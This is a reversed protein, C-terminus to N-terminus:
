RVEGMFIMDDALKRALTHRTEGGGRRRAIFDLDPGFKAAVVHMARKMLDAGEESEAGAALGSIKITLGKLGDFGNGNGSAVGPLISSRIARTLGKSSAIGLNCTDTGPCSTIDLATGAGVEDLGCERLGDHLARLDTRKVNPLVVNQDIAIRAHDESYETTLDALAHLVPADLEGLPVVVTVVARDPDKHARVSLSSWREFEPDADAQEPEPVPGPAKDVPPRGSLHWALVPAFEEPVYRRLDTEEIEKRTMSAREKAVLKRFEEIGLRHVVFKLRAKMKKTRNCHGSAVKIISKVLPLFEEVPVFEELVQATFPTAGLGGGVVVKFGYRARRGERVIRGLAGIDHIATAMCDEPCSSFAIKFKRALQQCFANRILYEFTAMSYPRVDFQEEAIFGSLPCATVNRVSNGCAERTSLGVAALARMLDTVEELQVYHFQIDQRTTLHSKGNGFRESIEAMRHLQRGNAAGSPIKVRIMQVGAQRQGYVGYALRFARFREDALEGALFRKVEGEFNNIEAATESGIWESM